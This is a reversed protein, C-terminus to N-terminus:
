RPRGSGTSSRSAPRRASCSARLRRAAGRGGIRLAEAVVPRLRARPGGDPPVDDAGLFVGHGQLARHDRAADGAHAERGARHVAGHRMPFCLVGGLGFTFAIPPTGCFIDDKQTRLISRPFADCMAVVDRHFHLTGKPKGTTGSTFAILAVDEAATPVSNFWLPQKLSLADLADPADDHWYSLQKLTPCAAAASSLEAELRKDCLAHSVEAKQIIETLEKARLLPMTAVCVGGAKMVAFWCAAMMPNNPGRLLVRNGPKLGMSRVLV